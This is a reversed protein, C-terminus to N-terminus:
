TAAVRFLQLKGAEAQSLVAQALLCGMDVEGSILATLAQPTSGYDVRTLTAGHITAILEMCLHNISGQGIAAYTYKAPSAKLVSVLQQISSVYLSSRVAVVNSQTAAVTVYSQGASPDYAMKKYLLTSAGMQAPKILAITYGDPKAHTLAQVSVM